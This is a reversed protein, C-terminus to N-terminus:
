AADPADGADVSESEQSGIPEPEGVESEELAELEAVAADFAVDDRDTALAGDGQPPPGEGADAASQAADRAEAELAARQQAALFRHM